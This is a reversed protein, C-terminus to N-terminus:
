EDATKQQDLASDDASASDTLAVCQCERLYVDAYRQLPADYYVTGVPQAGRKLRYGQKAIQTKTILHFGMTALLPMWHERQGGGWHFPKGQLGQVVDQLVRTITEIRALVASPSTM